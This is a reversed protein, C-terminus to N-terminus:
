EWSREIMTTKDHCMTFEKHTYIDSEYKHERGKYVKRGTVM